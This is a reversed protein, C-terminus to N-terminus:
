GAGVGYLLVTSQKDLTNGDGVHPAAGAAALNGFAVALTAVAALLKKRMVLDELKAV